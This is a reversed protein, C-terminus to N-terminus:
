RCGRLVGVSAAGPKLVPETSGGNNVITFPVIARDINNM